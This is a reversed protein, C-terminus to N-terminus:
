ISEPLKSKQQKFMSILLSIVVVLLCGILNLWLFAVSDFIFMSIVFLEAAIAAYFVSTGQVKKLFFAVIFIGLITGYFLSGLINVAEILSGLKNAFMAVAIALIGWIVTATKSAQLYHADSAHKNFSRKYIDVISTSALANLESATSSWSASFIVAILLGILGAPLYNIVFNLFIYNTDNTDATSDAQKIITIGENRIEKQQQNIAKLQEKYTKTKQENKDDIAQLLSFATSSKENSLSHYDQEVSIYKEALESSKVKQVQADNFFLPSPTFQYFAFLLAGILLILFQMPIKVMGNMLLALRSQAVSKGSLYRGVQSQDTGFYSLALFFGGILGSWINYRDNWDINFTIVNLKDMKGAIHLADMFGVEEPMLKVIMFGALFMGIIIVMMQQMQTYSVAKTGGAVTYTIVLGGMVLNTLYINWGLLSSLIIAPAYITLGAALGRQILFLIATFTRTKLDFRNELFEYATYVKLKHFRPLFFISIVIKALPLGFYFQVFRMGDTFAQGPASLFTIASAQTAMVSFLVSYWPMSQNGLLYGEINKQGRSRYIGYIIIALLTSSLVLWDIWSM